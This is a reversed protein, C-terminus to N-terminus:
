PFFDFKEKKHDFKTMLRAEDHVYERIQKSTIEAKGRSAVTKQIEYHKDLQHWKENREERKTM